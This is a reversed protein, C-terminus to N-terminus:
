EAQAARGREALKEVELYDKASPGSLYTRAGLKELIGLLRDTKQGFCRLSSSRLFRTHCIGLERALEVTTAITFDALKEERRSYWDRLMPEYRSFFPAKGYSHRLTEFHVRSWNTEWSIDMDLIKADRWGQGVKKLPITLWETARKTKVRNRNRWGHRDYQVDDYFVFVDAKQIQHFFGRWPIYSPQLIVCTM